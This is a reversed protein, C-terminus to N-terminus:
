TREPRVRIVQVEILEAVRQELDPAPVIDTEATFEPALIDKAAGGPIRPALEHEIALERGIRSITAARAVSEGFEHQPPRVVAGDPIFSALVEIRMRDRGEELVVNLDRRPECEVEADAVINEERWRERIAADGTEIEIEGVGAGVRTQLL